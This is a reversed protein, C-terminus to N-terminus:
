NRRSKRSKSAKRSKRARGYGVVTPEWNGEPDNINRYGMSRARTIRNPNWPGRQMLEEKISRGSVTRPRELQNMKRLMTNRNGM